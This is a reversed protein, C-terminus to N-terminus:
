VVYFCKLWCIGVQCFVFAYQKPRQQASHIRWALAEFKIHIYLLVSVSQKGRHGCTSAIQCLCTGYYRLSKILFISNEQWHSQPWMHSLLAGFCDCLIPLFLLFVLLIHDFATGSFGYSWSFSRAICRFHKPPTISLGLLLRSCRLLLPEIVGLAWQEPQIPLSMPDKVRDLVMRSTLSPIWTTSLLPRHESLNAIYSESLISGLTPPILLLVIEEKIHFDSVVKTLYTPILPLVM